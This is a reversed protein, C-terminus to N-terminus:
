QDYRIEDAKKGLPAGFGYVIGVYFIRGYQLRLYNDELAPSSVVRHLGQGNLLDSITAVLYVSTNFEHKFGVNLLNVAGLTGQPTLRQDTRSFTIQAFDDRTLRYDGEAKFNVGATSELGSSGLARADIQMTFANASLSYNLRPTIKGNTQFELGFSHTKPLNEKQILVVDSSVPEVVDTISNRDFRYYLTSGFNIVTGTHDYGFEYLWTDQPLLSANGARLNQTDQTDVFPNLAEPDPRTIRRSVNGILTWGASLDRQIHLSPYLGEDNNQGPINGTVLLTRARNTEYRLGGDFHWAGLVGDFEGYVANVQNRYRFSNTITPDAVAVGGIINAGANDFLNNNADLDYGLKLTGLSGFTREYDATFDIEQFDLGLKLTDFTPSAVPLLFGNQYQYKENERKISRTLSLSLTENPSGLQRDYTLGEDAYVDWEHGRSLRNSISDIAMGAPASEDQQLFHRAGALNRHSFSAGITQKDDIEYSVSGKVSPILRRVTEDLHEGSATSQGSGVVLRTDKTLRDKVDQRLGVGLSLKLPGRNYALDAGAVFRGEAGVSARVIGSFGAQRHKKMIINIVGGSGTAKVSAPPSTMIEIRDIDSASLQQLSLGATSGSFQASPKGDVLITVNSDNRLSVNGDTDVTVSPINNLLDAASGFHSQLDNTVPYVKRDILTQSQPAQATVVVTEVEAKGASQEQALAIPCWSFCLALGAGFYARM